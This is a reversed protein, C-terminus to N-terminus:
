LDILKWGANLTKLWSVTLEPSEDDGPRKVRIRVYAIWRGYQVEVKTLVVEKLVLDKPMKAQTKLLKDYEAKVRQAVADPNPFISDDKPLYLQSEVKKLDKTLLNACLSESLAKVEKEVAPKDSLPKDQALASAGIACILYTILIKPNM